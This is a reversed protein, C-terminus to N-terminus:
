HEVKLVHAEHGTKGSRGHACLRERYQTFRPMTFEGLRLPPRM